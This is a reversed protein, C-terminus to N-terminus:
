QGNSFYETFVVPTTQTNRLFNPPSSAPRTLTPHQTRNTKVSIFICLISAQNSEVVIRELKCDHLKDISEKKKKKLSCYKM